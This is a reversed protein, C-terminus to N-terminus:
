SSILSKFINWREEFNKFANLSPAWPSLVCVKWKPTKEKAIKVAQSLNEVEFLQVNEFLNKYKEFSDPLLIINLNEFKNIKEILKSYDFWENKGWLILTWLNEEFRDLVQFVSEPITSISDNYYKIEQFEWVFEQRHAIGNFEWLVAQVINESINLDECIPLISSINLFNHKWQLKIKSIPFKYKSWYVFKEDYGFFSSNEGFIFIQWPFKDDLLYDFDERLIANKSNTFINLKANLYNEHNEHWHTHVNFINTLVAYEAKTQIGDLMYSSIEFVAFDPQNDFDIESFIPNWINWVLKVSKWAKKLIEFILTSTTSKWKSWSILITKWKFKQFFVSAQTKIKDKVKQIEPLYISIWPSKYIEDFEQLNKLYDDSISQDLITIDQKPIGNSLLFEYTSKWEKGYWLIAIKM